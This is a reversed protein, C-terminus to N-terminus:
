ESAGPDDIPAFRRINRGDLNVTDRFMEM